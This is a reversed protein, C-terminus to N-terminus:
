EDTKDKGSATSDLQEILDGKAQPLRGAAIDKETLGGACMCVPGKDRFRLKKPKFQWGSATPQDPATSETAAAHTATAPEDGHASAALPAALVLVPILAFLAKM